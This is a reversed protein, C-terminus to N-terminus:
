IYAYDEASKTYIISAGNNGGLFVEYGKGPELDETAPNLVVGSSNTIPYDALDKLGPSSSFMLNKVEDVIAVAELGFKGIWNYGGELEVSPSSSFPAPSMETGFGYLSDAIDMNIWYAYGPVITDLDGYIGDNCDVYPKAKEATNARYISSDDDDINCTIDGLVDDIGSAVEGDANVPILPISILNWGEVLDIKWSYVITNFYYWEILTGDTARAFIPNDNGQDANSVPGWAVLCTDDSNDVITMGAPSNTNRFEACDSMGVITTSFTNDDTGNQDGFETVLNTLAIVTQEDLVIPAKANMNMTSFCSYGSASYEADKVVVTVTYFGADDFIHTIANGADNEIDTGKRFEWEYTLPTSDAISATSTFLTELGVATDEITPTSFGAPFGAPCVPRVRDITFVGSYDYNSGENLRLCYELGDAVGDVLINWTETEVAVGYTGLDQWDGTSTCAGLKYQLDLTSAGENEWNIVYTDSTIVETASPSTFYAASVVGSAIMLVGIVLIPLLLKKM